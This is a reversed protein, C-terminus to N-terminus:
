VKNPKQPNACRVRIAEAIGFQRTTIARSLQYLRVMLHRDSSHINGTACRCCCRLHVSRECFVCVQPLPFSLASLATALSGIGDTHSCYIDLVADRDVGDRVVGLALSYAARTVLRRLYFLSRILSNRPAVSYRRAANKPDAGLVGIFGHDAHPHLHFHPRDYEFHNIGRAIELAFPLSRLLRVLVL